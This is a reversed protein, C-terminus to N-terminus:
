SSSDVILGLTALATLLSALAANAGRSGTVTQKAVAASGYFGLGASVIGILIDGGLQNLNLTAAAGNNRAQISTPDFALNTSASGGTQFAHGTSALAIVTLGTARLVPTVTQGGLTNLNINAAAGNNRGQITTTSFTLNTSSSLGTQLAHATGALTIAGITPMTVLGTADWRICEVETAVLFATVKGTSARSAHTAVGWEYTLRGMDQNETTSSEGQFAMGIGFGAAPTGSSNLRFIPVNVVAATTATDTARYAFIGSAFTFENIPATASGIVMHNVKTTTALAGLGISKNFTASATFGVATGHQAGATTAAKGIAISERHGISLHGVAVSDRETTSALRGIATGRAVGSATAGAGFVACDALGNDAGSPGVVISNAGSGAAGTGIVLGVSGASVNRGIAIGDNGTVSAGSGIAIGRQNTSTTAQSGIAVSESGAVTNYGIATGNNAGVSAGSGIAVAQVAAATAASAGYRESNAGAGPSTPSTTFTQLLAFTQAIELGAITIDANPPTMVRTAGATFGDIEWRLLKTPDASGKVLANTDAFPPSFYDTGEAAISLVGTATTNKLLGTALASLAQENTLTGDPTQVIYTAGVPAGTAPAAKFIANGTATDKTLVHENTAAAVNTLTDLATQRSALDSLNNAALLYRADLVSAAMKRQNAAGAPDDVVYFLDDASLSALPTLQTLKHDDAM